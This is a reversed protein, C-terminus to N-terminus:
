NSPLDPSLVNVMEQLNEVFFDPAEKELMNNDQIGTKVCVVKMGANKAMQIDAITDGVYICENIDYGLKKTSLILAEPDPRVKKVDDRTISFDFYDKLKLRELIFVTEERSFGTFIVLKCRKNKLLQLAGLVSPFLTFDTVVETPFIRKFSKRCNEVNSNLDNGIYSSKVATEVIYRTSRGFSHIVASRDNIVLDNEKLARDAADLLAKDTKVLTGGIDFIFAKIM